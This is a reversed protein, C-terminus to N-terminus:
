KGAMLGSRDRDNSVDAYPAIEPEIVPMSPGNRNLVWSSVGSNRGTFFYM